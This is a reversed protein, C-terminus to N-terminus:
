TWDVNGDSMMEMMLNGVILWKKWFPREERATECLAERNRVSIEVHFIEADGSLSMFKMGMCDICISNIRINM